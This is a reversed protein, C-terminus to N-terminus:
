NFVYARAEQNNHLRAPSASLKGERRSGLAGVDGAAGKRWPEIFSSGM